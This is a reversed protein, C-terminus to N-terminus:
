ILVKQDKGGERGGRKDKPKGGHKDKPPGSPDSPCPSGSPPPTFRKNKVSDVRDADGRDKLRSPPLPM